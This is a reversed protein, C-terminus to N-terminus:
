PDSIEIERFVSFRPRQVHKPENHNQQYIWSQFGLEKLFLQDSLYSDHVRKLILLSIRSCLVHYINLSKGSQHLNFQLIGMVHFHSVFVPHIAVRDDLIKEVGLPKRLLLTM